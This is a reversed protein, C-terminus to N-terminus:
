FGGSRTPNDGRFLRSSCPAVPRMCPICWAVLSMAPVLYAPRLYAVASLGGIIVGILLATLPKM